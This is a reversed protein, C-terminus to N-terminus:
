LDAVEDVIVDDLTVLQGGHLHICQHLNLKSFTYLGGPFLTTNYDAERNPCLATLVLPPHTKLKVDHCCNHFVATTTNNHWSQCQGQEPSSITTDAFISQFSLILSLVLILVPSIHM